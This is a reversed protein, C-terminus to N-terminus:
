VQACIENEIYDNLEGVNSFRKVLEAIPLRIHYRGPDYSDYVSFCLDRDAVVIDSLEVEQRKVFLRIKERLREITIQTKGTTSSENSTNTNGANGTNGTNGTEM